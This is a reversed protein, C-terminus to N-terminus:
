GQNIGALYNRNFHPIDQTRINSGRMGGGKMRTVRGREVRVTSVLWSEKVNHPGPIARRM